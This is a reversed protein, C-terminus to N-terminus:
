SNSSMLRCIKEAERFGDKGGYRRLGTIVDPLMRETILADPRLHWFAQTFFREFAVQAHAVARRSTLDVGAKTLDTSSLMAARLAENMRAQYGPGEVRFHDIVDSDLKIYIGKRM